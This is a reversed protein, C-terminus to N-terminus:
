ASQAVPAPAIRPAALDAPYIVSSSPPLCRHRGIRGVMPLLARIEWGCPTATEVLAGPLARRLVSQFREHASVAWAQALGASTIGEIALHVHPQPITPDHGPAMHLEAQRVTWAGLVSGVAADRAESLARLYLDVMEINGTSHASRLAYTVTEPVGLIAMTAASTTPPHLMGGLTVM